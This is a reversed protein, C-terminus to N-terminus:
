HFPGADATCPVLWANHWKLMEVTFYSVSFETAYIHSQRLSRRIINAGPHIQLTSSLGERGWQDISEQFLVDGGDQSTNGIHVYPSGM